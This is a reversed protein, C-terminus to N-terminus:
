LFVGKFDIALTRNIVEVGAVVYVYKITICAYAVKNHM